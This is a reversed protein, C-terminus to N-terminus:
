FTVKITIVENPAMQFKITNNFVVIDKDHPNELINICQASMITKHFCIEGTSNQQAIEYIRLIIGDKSNDPLKITSVQINGEVKLFSHTTALNGNHSRNSFPVVPYNFSSSIEYFSKASNECLSIGIKKQILGYEPCQDPFQSSRILTLELSNNAGHYAYISDAILGIGLRIPKCNDSARCAFGFGLAPVDHNYNSRETTGFPTKYIYRNAVYNFPVCFKLAPIGTNEDFREYWDCDIKYILYKSNADLSVTVDIKSKNFAIKYVISKRLSDYNKRESIQVFKTENLNEQNVIYGEVWANGPMVTLCKHNQTVLTFYGSKESVIKDNSLKDILEIINMSHDFKVKIYDNELINEEYHEIRINTDPLVILPVQQEQKLIYTNYGYSCVNARMLIKLFKHAWFEGNELIVYRIKFGLVDTIILTELDYDYDWITIEVPEDREYQTPNFLHVIRTEGNGNEALSVDYGGAASSIFHSSGKYGVGAGESLSHKDFNIIISSTDISEAIKAYSSAKAAYIYGMAEQFSGMAHERTERVGAGALIDHFQNFLTSIWAKHFNSSYNGGNCFNVALAHISETTFLYNEATRNAMKLRSQSSYCGTFVFNLEGEVIPFREKQKEICRFFNSYTSFELTPFIPWNSMDIISEIDRRTPGGGHDGVGFVKLMFNSCNEKCSNPYPLVFDPTIQSNYWFPERYVLISAGSITKWNYITHKEYGRCHYYYKVNGKSLIEPVIASHGFTDPEFDLQLSSEDLEFKERFYNKTYLIHRAQSEGDTMNKDAEVWTSATVEWRGEKVRKKIEDFMYIDNEEVIKYVSAQSQSFKLQPYEEMLKLVTRFTDLTIAVTENYGWMWNMDIHAHSVCFIKYKKAEIQIPMLISECSNLIEISISATKDFTEKLYRIAESICEDFRNENVNSVQIAYELEAIIRKLKSDGQVKKMKRICDYDVM